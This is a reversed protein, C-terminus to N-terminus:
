REEWCYTKTKTNKQTNESVIGIGSLRKAITAHFSSEKWIIPKSTIKLLRAKARREVIKAFRPRKNEM